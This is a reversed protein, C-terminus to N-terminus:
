FAQFPVSDIHNWFEWEQPMNIDIEISRIEILLNNTHMLMELALIGAKNNSDGKM